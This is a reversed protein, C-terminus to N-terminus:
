IWTKHTSHLAWSFCTRAIASLNKSRNSTQRAQIQEIASLEQGFAISNKQSQWPLPGLSGYPHQFEINKVLESVKSDSLNYYNKIAHYIYHEVCRDYNFIVFSISKLREPLNKARCNETLIITFPTLWCDETKSFDIRKELTESDIYITSNKEAEIISRVIAIKGCLEISKNEKHSDIFNDISIAQPMADRIIKASDLLNKTYISRMTAVNNYSSFDNASISVDHPYTPTISSLLCTTATWGQLYSGNNAFFPDLDMSATWPALRIADAIKGDGSILGNEDREIDLFESIRRKLETGLPLGLEKSAGAGVILTLKKKM